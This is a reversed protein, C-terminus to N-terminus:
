ECGIGDNDRDFKQEFGPEGRYIPARGAARVETCNKFPGNNGSSPPTVVVPPPAVPPLTVQVSRGASAAATRGNGYYKVTLEHTGSWLTPLTITAAGNVLTAGALVQGYELVRVEGSAAGRVTSVRVAVTARQETTVSAIASVSLAAALKPRKVTVTRARHNTDGPYVITLTSSDPASAPVTVSARGSHLQVQGVTRGGAVVKVAGRPAGVPGSVTMSVTEPWGKVSAKVSAKAKARVVKVSKSGALHRSDGKYVLAVSTTGSAFGKGIKLKAQGGSLRASALTKGGRKALVTGGATSGNGKVKVKIVSTKGYTSKKVKAVITAKAKVVTLGAKASSAAVTSTGAYSATVTYKKAAVASPLATTARGGNLTVTRRASGFAITVKGTAPAGGAKVSVSASLRNGSKVKAPSLKLATTSVQKKVVVTGDLDGPEAGDGSPAFDIDVEHAGISLRSAALNLRASGRTLVASARQEGDVWLSVIGAPAPGKRAGLVASVTVSFATTSGVTVSAPLSSSVVVPWAIPRIDDSWDQSPNNLDDGQYDARIQIDKTIPLSFTASGASLDVRKLEIGGSGDDTDDFFVVKGTPVAGDGAVSATLTVADGFMPQYNDVTLTLDTESRDSNKSQSQTAIEFRDAQDARAIAPSMSLVLGAVLTAGWAKHRFRRIQRAPQM